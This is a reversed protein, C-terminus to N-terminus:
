EIKFNAKMKYFGKSAECPEFLDNTFSVKTNSNDTLYKKIKPMLQHGADSYIDSHGHYLISGTNTNAQYTEMFHMLAKHPVKNSNICECYIIEDGNLITLIKNNRNFSVNILIDNKLKLKKNKKDESVKYYINKMFIERIHKLVENSYKGKEANVDPIASDKGKENLNIEFDPLFLYNQNLFKLYDINDANNNFIRSAVAYVYELLIEREMEYSLGKVLSLLSLCKRLYKENDFNIKNNTSMEDSSQKTRSYVTVVGFVTDRIIIPIAIYDHPAPYLDRLEFIIQNDKEKLGNFFLEQKAMRPDSWSGVTFEPLFNDYVMGAIGSHELEFNGLFKIFDIYKEKKINLKDCDHKINDKKSENIVYRFCTENDSNAKPAKIMVWARQYNHDESLRNYFDDIIVGLHNNSDSINKFHKEFHKFNNNNNKNRSNDFFKQLNDQTLSKFYSKQIIKKLSVSENKFNAFMNETIVKNYPLIAYIYIKDNRTISIPITIVSESKSIGFPSGQSIDPLTELTFNNLDFYYPYNLKKLEDDSVSNKLLKKIKKKVEDEINSMFYFNNKIKLSILIPDPTFILELFVFFDLLCGIGSNNYNTKVANLFYALAAYYRKSFLESLTTNENYLRIPSYTLHPFEGEYKRYDKGRKFNCLYNSCRFYFEFDKLYKEAIEDNDIDKRYDQLFLKLMISDNTRYLPMNCHPCLYDSSIEGIHKIFNYKIITIEYEKSISIKSISGPFLILNKKFKSFRDEENKSKEKLYKHFNYLINGENIKKGTIELFKFILLLSYIISHHSLIIVDKEKHVTKIEILKKIVSDLKNFNIPNKENNFFDANFNEEDFNIKIENFIEDANEFTRDSKDSKLQNICQIARGDKSTYVVDGKGSFYKRLRNLQEKGISSLTRLNSDKADDNKEMHPTRCFYIYM